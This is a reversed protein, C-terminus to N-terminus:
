DAEADPLGDVPVLLERAAAADAARVHVGIGAEGEETSALSGGEVHDVIVAEIGFARLKAEAVEAEGLDTFAAVVVPEAHDVPDTADPM